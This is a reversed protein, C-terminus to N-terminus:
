ILYSTKPHDIVMVLIKGEVGQLTWAVKKQM